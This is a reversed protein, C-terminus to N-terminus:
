LTNTGESTESNVNAPNSAGADYTQRVDTFEQEQSSTSVRSDRKELRSNSFALPPVAAEHGIEDEPCFGVNNSPMKSDFTSIDSSKLSSPETTASQLKHLEQLKGWPM